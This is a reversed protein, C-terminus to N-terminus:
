RLMKMPPKKKAKEHDIRSLFKPCHTLLAIRTTSQKKKKSRAM